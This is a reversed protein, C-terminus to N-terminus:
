QGATSLTGIEKVYQARLRKALSKVEPRHLKAHDIIEIAAEHHTRTFRGVAAEYSDGELKMLSDVQQRLHDPVSPDRRDNFRTRLLSALEAQRFDEAIDSAGAPDTGMHMRNMQMASHALRVMAENHDALDRLFHHDTDVTVSHTHPVASGPKPIQGSAQPAITFLTSLTVIWGASSRHTM